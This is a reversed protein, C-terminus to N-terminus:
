LLGLCTTMLRSSIRKLKASHGAMTSASGSGDFVLLHNFMTNSVYPTTRRHHRLVKKRLM